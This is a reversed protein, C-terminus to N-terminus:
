IKKNINKHHCRMTIANTHYLHCSSDIYFKWIIITTSTLFHPLINIHHCQLGLVHGLWRLRHKNSFNLPVSRYYSEILKCEECTLFAQSIISKGLSYKTPFPISLDLPHTVALFMISSPTNPSLNMNCELYSWSNMVYM